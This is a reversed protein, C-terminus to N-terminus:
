FTVTHYLPALALIPYLSMDFCIVTAYQDYVAYTSCTSIASSEILITFNALPWYNNGTRGNSHYPIDYFPIKMEVMLNGVSVGVSFKWSSAFNCYLVLTYTCTGCSAPKGGRLVGLKESDKWSDWVPLGCVSSVPQQWRFCFIITAIDALTRRYSDIISLICINNRWSHVSLTSGWLAEQVARSEICLGCAIHLTIKSLKVQSIGTM